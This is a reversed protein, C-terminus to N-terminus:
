SCRTACKGSPVASAASIVLVQNYRMSGVSINVNQFSAFTAGQANSVLAAPWYLGALFSPVNPCRSAPNLGSLAAFEGVPCLSPIAAIMHSVHSCSPPVSGATCEVDQLSPCGDSQVGSPAFYSGMPCVFGFWFMVYQAQPPCGTPQTGPVCANASPASDFPAPARSRLLASPFMLTIAGGAPLPSSATFSLTATKSSAGPTRDGSAMTFSVQTISGAFARPFSALFLVAVCLATIRRSLSMVSFGHRSNSSFQNCRPM